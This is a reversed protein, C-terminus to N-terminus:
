KRVRVNKGQRRKAAAQAASMQYNLKVNDITLKSGLAVAHYSNAGITKNGLGTGENLASGSPINVAPATDSKTSRFGIEIKSAKKGMAYGSLPMTVAVNNGATLIKTSSSLLVGSADLIRIYAEGEENNYPAYSYTFSLSEPRSNWAIGNTRHESGDYSYSGLFLEGSAKELQASTPANACYYKTSGAGGSTSPTSGSHNYGVTQVVTAGNDSYTSPVMFWTNKNSSGSWCTLDNLNAWNNPTSRVISSKITYDVPWVSYKGGVQVDSINITQTFLDFGGNPVDEGTESRFAPVEVRPNDIYSLYTQLTYDTNPTLELELMGNAADTVIPTKVKNNLSVKLNKVVTEMKSPDAPIVKVKAIYSYPDVELTYEPFIVGEKKIEAKPTADDGYFARLKIDRHEVAPIRLNYNYTYSEGNRTRVPNSATIIEAATWQEDGDTIEFRINDKLDPQNTTVSVGIETDLYEPMRTVDMQVNVDKITVTFEVPTDCVITRADEVDITIKYTGSSLKSIFDKFKLFGAKDPNRYFGEVVIGAKAVLAQVDGSAGVFQVTNGFDLPTSTQVTMNVKRMGGYALVDVRPDGAPVFGAFENYTMNEPFGYAKVVPAPANFLDDGLNIDVFESEVEETIQVDLRVSDSGVDDKVGLTIVYHYQPRAEFSYPSVKVEQGQSNTLNLRLDIKEPKMYAPRDEDRTFVVWDTGTEAKMSASYAAFQGKFEDTYRLSVMANALSATLSVHNETAAEVTVDSKAYFYPLEFGEKDPSGYSAAITYTGIPFSSEHNFLTLNTWNKSYSGDQKEFSIAFQEAEPIVSVRKDNDDSRTSMIVRSDTAVDLVLKGQLGDKSFDAENGCSALGFLALGCLLGASVKKM